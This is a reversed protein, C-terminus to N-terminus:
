PRVGDAGDLMRRQDEAMFADLWRRWAKGAAIGDRVHMTEHARAFAAQYDRWLEDATAQRHADLSVVNDSM